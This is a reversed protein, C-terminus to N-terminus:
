IRRCNNCQFYDSISTNPLNYCHNHFWFNCTDCQISYENGDEAYAFEPLNCDCICEITYRQPIPVKGTRKGRTICPFPTIVERVICKHMHERMNAQTWTPYVPDSGTALATVVAAAFLGCDTWGLQQQIKPVQVELQMSKDPYLLALQTDIDTATIGQFMSDYLRVGYVSDSSSCVWHNKKSHHVQVSLEDRPM